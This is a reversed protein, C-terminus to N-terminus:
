PCDPVSVTFNFNNGNGQVYSCVPTQAKDVPGDFVVVVKDGAANSVPVAITTAELRTGDTGSNPSWTGAVTSGNVTVETVGYNRCTKTM